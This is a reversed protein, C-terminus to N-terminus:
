QMNPLAWIWFPIYKILVGDFVEEGEFNYTIIKAEDLGLGKAAAVLASIERSKTLTDSLQYSVQIIEKTKGSIIFDVEKGSKLKLYNISQTPGKKRLLELLVANELARGKDIDSFLRAIGIDIIYTKSQLSM